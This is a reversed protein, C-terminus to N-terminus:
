SAPVDITPSVIVEIGEASLVNVPYALKQIFDVVRNKV